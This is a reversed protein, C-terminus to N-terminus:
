PTPAGSACPRVTLGPAASSASPIAAIVSIARYNAAPGRGSRVRIKAAQVANPSRMARWVHSWSRSRASDRGSQDMTAGGSTPDHSHASYVGGMM